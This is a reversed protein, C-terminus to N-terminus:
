TKSTNMKELLGAFPKQVDEDAAGAFDATRVPVIEAGEARPFAPIALSLAEAMVAELDLASPLAENDEDPMEQEDAGTLGDLEALYQRLVHEDIRTTVPALTLGCPQVITAGLTADLIWDQQGSPRLEGALRLKRLAELGLEGALAACTRGDPRIDFPVAARERAGTPRIRSTASPGSM